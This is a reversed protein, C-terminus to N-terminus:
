HLEANDLIFQTIPNDEQGLKHVIQYHNLGEYELYEIQAEARNQVFLNKSQEIFLDTEDDGISLLVPCQVVSLDKNSVSLREVDEPTLQLVDNLYSNRIPELDFLGSLSCIAKISLRLEENMLYAMLALHGGASHGSLIIENPNGNFHHIESRIWHVADRVDHLLQEMNVSPILRYNIICVTMDHRLFPEAVFRYSKKDLARWYGGHIFVLVPSDEGIAPFIDMGQLQDQGYKQDLHCNYQAAVRTSESENIDLWTQFNPHRNRLNLQNEPTMAM